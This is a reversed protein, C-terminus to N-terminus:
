ASRWGHGDPDMDYDFRLSRLDERHLIMLNRNRSKNSLEFLNKLSKPRKDAPLDRVHRERQCAVVSRQAVTGGGAVNGAALVAIDAM